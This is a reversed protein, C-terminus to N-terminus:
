FANALDAKWLFAGPPLSELDEFLSDLSSYSLHGYAKPVLDNLARLDHIARFKVRDKPVAALPTICSPYSRDVEQIEGSDLRRRTEERVFELERGNLRYPPMFIPADTDAGLSAGNNFISMLISVFAPDPYRALAAQWRPARPQILGGLPVPRPGYPTFGM